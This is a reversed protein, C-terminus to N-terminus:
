GNVGQILHRLWDSQNERRPVFPLECKCWPNTTVLTRPFMKMHSGHPNSWAHQFDTMSGDKKLITCHRSPYHARNRDALRIPATPELRPAYDQGESIKKLIYVFVQGDPIKWQVYIVSLLVAADCSMKVWPREGPGRWSNCGLFQHYFSLSDWTIGWVHCFRRAVHCWYCGFLPQLFLCTGANAGAYTVLSTVFSSCAGEPFVFCSVQGPSKFIYRWLM